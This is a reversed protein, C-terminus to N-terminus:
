RFGSQSRQRNGQFCGIDYLPYSMGTYVVARQAGIFILLSYSPPFLHFPRDGKPERVRLERNATSKRKVRM